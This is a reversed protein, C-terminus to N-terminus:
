AKTLTFQGKRILTSIISVAAERLFNISEGLLVPAREEVVDRPVRVEVYDCPAREQVYEHSARVEVYDHPARVM